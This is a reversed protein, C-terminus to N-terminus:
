IKWWQVSRSFDRPVLLMWIWLKRCVIMTDLRISMSSLILMKECTETIMWLWPYSLSLWIVLFWDWNTSCNRIKMAFEVLFRVIWSHSSDRKFVFIRKPDWCSPSQKLEMVLDYFNKLWFKVSFDQAEQFNM